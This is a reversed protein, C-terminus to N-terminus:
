SVRMYRGSECVDPYVCIERKRHRAHRKPLSLPSWPHDIGPGCGCVQIKVQATQFVFPGEGRPHRGIPQAM